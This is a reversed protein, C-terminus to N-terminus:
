FGAEPGLGGTFPFCVFLKEKGKKSPPFPPIRFVGRFDWIGFGVAYVYIVSARSVEAENGRKLTYLPKSFFCLTIM